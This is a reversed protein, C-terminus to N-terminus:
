ACSLVDTQPLVRKTIWVEHVTKTEGFDFLAWTYANWKSSFCTTVDNREYIGKLLNEVAKNPSSTVSTNNQMIYDEKLSTWRSLKNGTYPSADHLPSVVLLALTCTTDNYCYARCSSDHDCAMAFHLKEM